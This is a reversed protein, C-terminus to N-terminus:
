PILLRGVSLYYNSLRCQLYPDPLEKVQILSYCKTIYDDKDHSSSHSNSGLGHSFSNHAVFLRSKLDKDNDYWLLIPGPCPRVLGEKPIVYGTDDLGQGM